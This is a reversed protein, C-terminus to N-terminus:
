KVLVESLGYTIQKNYDEENTFSDFAALEISEANLLRKSKDNVEIVVAKVSKTGIDITAYLGPNLKKTM